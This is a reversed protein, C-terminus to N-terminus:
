CSKVLKKELLVPLKTILHKHMGFLLLRRVKFGYTDFTLTISGTAGGVVDLSGSALYVGENPIVTGLKQQCWRQAVSHVPVDRGDVEISGYKESM